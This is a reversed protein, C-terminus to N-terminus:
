PTIKSITHIGVFLRIFKTILNKIIKAAIM